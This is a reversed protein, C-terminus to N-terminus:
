VRGCSGNHKSKKPPLQSCFEGLLTALGSKGLKVSFCMSLILFFFFPFFFVLKGVRCVKNMNATLTCPCANGQRLMAPKARQLALFFSAFFVKTLFPSRYTKLFPGTPYPNLAKWCFTHGKWKLALFKLPLRHCPSLELM